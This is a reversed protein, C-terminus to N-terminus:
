EKQEEEAAVHGCGAPQMGCGGSSAAASMMPCGTPKADGAKPCDAKSLPCAECCGPEGAKPCDDKLPCAECCAAKEAAKPCAGEKVACCVGESKKLCDATARPWDQQAINSGNAHMPCNGKGAGAGIVLAVGALLGLVLVGALVRRMIHGKLAKLHYKGL